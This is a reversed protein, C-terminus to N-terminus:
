VQLWRQTWSGGNTAKKRQGCINGCKMEETVCFPSNHRALRVSLFYHLSLSLIFELTRLHSLWSTCPLIAHLFYMSFFVFMAAAKDFFYTLVMEALQLLKEPRRCHQMWNGPQVSMKKKGCSILMLALQRAAPLSLSVWRLPNQCGPTQQLINWAFHSASCTKSNLSIRNLKLLMSLRECLGFTSSLRSHSMQVSAPM